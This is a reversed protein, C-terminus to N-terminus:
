LEHEFSRGHAIALAEVPPEALHAHMHYCCVPQKFLTSTPNLPAFLTRRDAHVLADSFHWHPRECTVGCATRRVRPM